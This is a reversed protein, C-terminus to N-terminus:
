FNQFCFSVFSDLLVCAGADVLWPLNPHIKSWEISRVLISGVYTSNGILAFIFMLPNLGEVSGRKMNLCIQPLRGGMYIATMAWGMFNGVMSHGEGLSSSEGVNQLLKRGLQIVVGQSTEHMAENYQSNASRHLNFSGLFLIIASFSCLMNKTNLPPASQTSVFAGLLPEEVSHQQLLTIPSARSHALYSGATPTASSALSRASTFYLDRGTSSFRPLVTDAVPIPSTSVYHDDMSPRSDYTQIYERKTKKESTADRKSKNPSLYPGSAKVRPYIHCYYISQLTLILTTVAYLVATYFQTPLTAPELLCGFLNFFDGLVWTLLFAMSLSESTKEKYNSIIQPIEAVGWSIVSILGLILSLWDKVDCICYKMYVRAWEWCHKNIPCAPLSENILEM